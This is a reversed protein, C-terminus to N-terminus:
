FCKKLENIIKEKARMIELNSVNEKENKSYIILQIANNKDLFLM